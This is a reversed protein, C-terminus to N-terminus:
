SNKNKNLNLIENYFDLLQKGKNSWSVENEAIARIISRSSIMSEMSGIIQGMKETVSDSYKSSVIFAEPFSNVFERVEGIPNILIHRGCALYDGICNPWGSLNELTESKFLAFVDVCQLVEYDEAFDIWGYFIICQLEEVSLQRSMGIEDGFVLVKIKNDFCNNVLTELLPHIEDISDNKANIYGIILDDVKFGYKLKVLENKEIFPITEVPAGGYLKLYKANPKFQLLRQALVESTVIVGNALKKDWIEANLEIWGFFFKFLYHKNDYMGGKGFWDYWDTVYPTRYVIKQLVCPIGGNPRHGCDSHSIDFKVLLSYFIKLFFSLFGYGMSTIRAPIIEPFIIVKVGDIIEVRIFISIGPNTTLITVYCQNEVLAKAFQFTRGWSGRKFVSSHSILVNVSTKLM